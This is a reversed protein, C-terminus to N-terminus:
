DGPLKRYGTPTIGYVNLFTTSFYSASTFGCLMAIEIMTYNTGSLLPLAHQLRVKTLLDVFTLGTEQKIRKTLTSVSVHTHRAVDILTLNPNDYSRRIYEIANYVYSQATGDTQVAVGQTDALCLCINKLQPFITKPDEAYILERLGQLLAVRNFPKQRSRTDAYVNSFIDMALLLADSNTMKRAVCDQEM